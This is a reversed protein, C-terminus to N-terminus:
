KQVETACRVINSATDVFFCTLVADFAGRRGGGGYVEVFDGAAM